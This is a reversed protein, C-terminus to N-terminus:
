KDLFSGPWSRQGKRNRKKERLRTGLCFLTDTSFHRQMPNKQQINTKLTQYLSNRQGKPVIAGHNFIGASSITWWLLPWRHWVVSFTVLLFSAIQIDINDVLNTKVLVLLSFWIRNGYNRITHAWSFLILLYLFKLPFVNQCEQSCHRAKDKEDLSKLFPGKRRM